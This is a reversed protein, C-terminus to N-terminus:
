SKQWTHYGASDTTTQSKTYKYTCRARLSLTSIPVSDISIPSFILTIRSDSSKVRSSNQPRISTGIPM